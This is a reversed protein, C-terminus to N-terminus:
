LTVRLGEPLIPLTTGGMPLVNVTANPTRDRESLIAVELNEYWVLGMREVEQKGLDKSVVVVRHDGKCVLAYYLACNFDIAANELLLQNTRFKGVAFEKVRGQSDKGIKEFLEVFTVPMRQTSKAVLIVTGGQKTILSGTILPKIVQLPELYPYASVLTVDSKEPINIGCLQQSLNVGKRHVEEYSGLLVNAVQDRIDFVCNLSYTLRGMKGIRFIEQYFPNEETIGFTSKEHPTWALHHERIAEYNSIGPFIIKPGGGFGNMPHPFVSGLGIRVDAQAAIRNIRIEGGTKLRGVPVLDKARCDHQIVRYTELLDKGIKQRLADREMPVHTGLSVVIDIAERSVGSQSLVELLSPLMESVPTPRAGDDTLIAVTQASGISRSLSPGDLPHTLAERTLQSVPAYSQGADAPQGYSILKWGKPLDFPRREHGEYIFYTM